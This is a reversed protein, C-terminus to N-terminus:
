QELLKHRCKGSHIAGRTIKMMRICLLKASEAVYYKVDNQLQFVSIIIRNRRHSRLHFSVCKNNSVISVVFDILFYNLSVVKPIPSDM